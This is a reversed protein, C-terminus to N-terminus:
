RGNIVWLPTCRFHCENGHGGVESFCVRIEFDVKLEDGVFRQMVFDHYGDRAPPLPWSTTSKSAMQGAPKAVEIQQLIDRRCTNGRRVHLNKGRAM